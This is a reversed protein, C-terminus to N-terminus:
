LDDRWRTAVAHFPIGDATLMAYEITLQRGIYKDLNKLVETKEPVSGPASIDFEKGNFDVRLIAWGQSSARGGKVVVEGDEREKVKILQNVRAGDQYGAISLRLMSGELGAARQAKFHDYVEAMRTVKVTPVLEIQPQKCNAHLDAMIRYRQDFFRTRDVMDYWHYNLKRSDPQEAKILSSISQLKMGHIYLEGDTTDGDQLWQYMDELIHPITTIPKGKRTYALIDGGQKTILCRHGDFKPQVYANAMMSQTLTVKNLALALMPNALGMQNTSGQLAEDRTTKYGKDKMRSIRAAVELDLQQQITRGSNNTVVPDEHTVESGGEVTSHRIFIKGRTATEVLSTVRWTGIGLSNKRWLPTWNLDSM